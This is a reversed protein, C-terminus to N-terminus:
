LFAFAVLSTIVGLLVVNTRSASTSAADGSHGTSTSSSSSSTSTTTTTSRTSNGTHVLIYVEGTADSSVFLRGQTDFALAVPRFCQGPCNSNDANTFIDRTGDTSSAAPVPSGNAFAVTSIKYGVPSNRDWSGHFTVFAETGNSLFKIDLPAMHAEFTLRPPVFQTACTTDNLTSNPDMSFQEGVTLGGLGSTGWVAFCTPFGYNGGQNETSGNLFGHYNMEEGPNDQHIDVGNREIQDVSNEVSYIGGTTPEEGVGVSNRLGWGLLRGATDFNYPSSSSTLNSVDFAKIQSHGSSLIAADPDVNESGGRSVVLMGPETQSMLLTRTTHDVNSMGNIVTRNEASVTVDKANYSWAYVAEWSSAYLTNGDNSLAIGHTLDTSNILYTKKALGVCTSGGDTFQLHVIGHGQQVVLLGGNSDFAIGRPTTLNNAVLQYQWGDSSVPAPYSTTLAPCKSDDAATAATHVVLSAAGLGLVLELGRSTFKM